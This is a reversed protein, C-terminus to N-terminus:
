LVESFNIASNVSINSGAAFRVGLVLKDAVGQITSGIRSFLENFSVDAQRSISSAVDAFIVTGRSSITNSASGVAFTTANAGTNNFTFTGAITPNIALFYEFDQTSGSSISISKILATVSLATSRLSLGLLAYDTSNGLSGIQGSLVASAQEASTSLGGERQVSSCIQMLNSSGGTSRLEYRLPLNPSTLYVALKINANLFEHVYYLVGDIDLGLRIRGVGLWQFDIVFIQTKAWDVNIKSPGTGDMKDLNWNAQTIKSEGSGIGASKNIAVFVDTADRGFCIGDYTDYPAVIGGTFYGIRAATSAVPAGLIGTMLVLQSKASSYNLYQKSQRIAYDANVSVALNVCADAPVHTSTASGSIIENWFNSNKDLILKSDFITSVESVRLRGFADNSASNPNLKIENFYTM